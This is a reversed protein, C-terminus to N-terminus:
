RPQAPFRGLLTSLNFSLTGGVTLALDGGGTRYMGTAADTFSFGPAAASGNGARVRQAFTATGTSGDMIMSAGPSGDAFLNIQSLPAGNPTASITVSGYYHEILLDNQGVIDASSIQTRLTGGDTRWSVSRRSAKSGDALLLIGDTDNIGVNRVGGAYWEANINNFKTGGTSTKFWADSTTWTGAQAAAFGYEGTFGVADLRGMVAHVKRNAPTYPNTTWKGITIAPSTASVADSLIYGQGSAGFGTAQAGQQFALSTSGSRLTFTWSQESAGVATYGSVQGWISTLAFGGSLDLFRLLVWDNATFLAGAIHPSNEFYITATGGVSAPTTFPRSLVAFGKTIYEQGQDVRVLDAVFTKATVEDAELRGVQLVSQGSVSAHKALRFGALPFGAAYNGSRLADNFDFIVNSGGSDLTIDGVADIQLGAGSFLRGLGLAGANSRLLATTGGSVNASPTLVGLTDTATAGVVGYQAATITHDAGTVLHARSQLDSYLRTALDVLSSGTKSVKAWSLTGSHDGASDLAHLRVHHADPDAVHAGYTTLVPYRLDGRGVTLYHLHDDGDLGALASHASVGAGGGGWASVSSGSRRSGGEDIVRQVRQKPM